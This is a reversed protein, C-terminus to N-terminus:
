QVVEPAPNEETLTEDLEDGDGCGTLAAIRRVLALAFAQVAFGIVIATLVLAQPAPDAFPAEPLSGDEPLIPVLTGRTRGATFLLLNAGHGLLAVGFVMKVLSRRLLLYIGTAVLLGAALALLHTM